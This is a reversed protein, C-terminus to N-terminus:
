TELKGLVVEFGTSVHSVVNHIQFASLRPRDCVKHYKLGRAFETNGRHRARKVMKTYNKVAEESLKESKAGVVTMRGTAFIRAATNLGRGGRVRMCCSNEGAIYEVNKGWTALSRLNIRTNLDATAVINTVKPEPPRTNM